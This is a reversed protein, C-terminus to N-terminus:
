RYKKRTDFTDISKYTDIIEISKRYYRGDSSNVPYGHAYHYDTFGHHSQAGLQTENLQYQWPMAPHVWQRADGEADLEWDFTSTQNLLSTNATNWFNLDKKEYIIQGSSNYWTWPELTIRNNDQLDAYVDHHNTNYLHM